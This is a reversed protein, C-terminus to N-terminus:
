FKPRPKLQEARWGRSCIMITVGRLVHQSLSLLVKVSCWGPYQEETLAQVPHIETDVKQCKNIKRIGWPDTAIHLTSWWSCHYRFITSRIGHAVDIFSFSVCLACLAHPVLPPLLLRQSQSQNRTQGVCCVPGSHDWPALIQCEPQTNDCQHKSALVVCRVTIVKHSSSHSFTMPGFWFQLMLDPQWWVSMPCDQCSSVVLQIRYPRLSSLNDWWTRVNSHFDVHWMCTLLMFCVEVTFHNQRNGTTTMKWVPHFPLALLLGLVAGWLMGLTLFGAVVAVCQLCVIRAPAASQKCEQIPLALSRSSRCCDSSAPLEVREAGVAPSPGVGAWGARTGSRWGQCWPELGQSWKRAM